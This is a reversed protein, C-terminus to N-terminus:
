ASSGRRQHGIWRAVLISGAMGIGLGALAGLLESGGGYDVVVAGLLALLLPLLFLGVASWALWAGRPVPVNPADTDLRVLDGHCSCGGGDQSCGHSDM